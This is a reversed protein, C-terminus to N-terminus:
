WIEGEDGIDHFNQLEEHYTNDWSVNDTTTITFSPTVPVYAETCDSVIGQDRTKVLCFGREYRLSRSLPSRFDLAVLGLGIRRRYHYLVVACKRRELSIAEGGGKDRCVIIQLAVTTEKLM